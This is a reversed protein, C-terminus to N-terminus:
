FEMEITQTCRPLPKARKDNSEREDRIERIHEEFAQWDVTSEFANYFLSDDYVLSEFIKWSDYEDGINAILLTMLQNHDYELPNLGWSELDNPYHSYFGDYSTHRKKIANRFVEIDTEAFLKIVSEDSIRAFIRDTEFNYERPSSMDSYELAIGFQESFADVWTKAIADYAHCQNSYRWFDLENANIDPNEELFNETFQEEQNDLESSLCSNYFGPFPIQIIM